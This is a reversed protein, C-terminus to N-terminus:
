DDGWEFNDWDDYDPPEDPGEWSEDPARDRAVDALKDLTDDGFKVGCNPCVDPLGPNFDESAPTGSGDAHYRCGPDILLSCQVEFEDECAPCVLTTTYEQAHM